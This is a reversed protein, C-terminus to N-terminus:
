GVDVYKLDQNQAIVQSRKHGRSPDTTDMDMPISLNRKYEQTSVTHRSQIEM